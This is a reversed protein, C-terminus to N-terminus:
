ITTRDLAFQCNTFQMSNSAALTYTGPLEREAMFAVYYPTWSLSKPNGGNPTCIWSATYDHLYVYYNSGSTGDYVLQNEILSEMYDGSSPNTCADNM